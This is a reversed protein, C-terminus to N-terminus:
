KCNAYKIKRKLTQLDEQLGGIDIETINAARQALDLAEIQHALKLKLCKIHARICSAESNSLSGKMTTTFKFRRPVCVKIVTKSQNRYRCKVFTAKNDLVLWGTIIEM